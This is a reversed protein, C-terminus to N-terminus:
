LDPWRRVLSLCSLFMGPVSTSYSDGNRTAFNNVSNFSRIGEPLTTSARSNVFFNSSNRRPVGSSNSATIFVRESFPSNTTRTSFSTGDEKSGDDYIQHFTQRTKSLACHFHREAESTAM